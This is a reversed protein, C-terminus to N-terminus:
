CDKYMSLLSAPRSQLVMTKRPLLPLRATPRHLTQQEEAENERLAQVVEEVVVEVEARGQRGGQHIWGPPYRIIEFYNAEKHRTKGYHKCRSKEGQMVSPQTIQTM